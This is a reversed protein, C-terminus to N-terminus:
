CPNRDWGAGIYEIRTTDLTPEGDLLGWLGLHPWSQQPELVFERETEYCGRTFRVGPYAAELDDVTSGVEIGAETAFLASKTLYYHFVLGEPIAAPTESALDFHNWDTFQVYLLEAGEEGWRMSLDTDPSVQVEEWDPPGLLETLVARVTEVPEGFTAVGLGDDRLVLQPTTTIPEAETSTSGVETSVSHSTTTTAATTSSSNTGAETPRSTEHTVGGGCGVLVILVISIQLRSGM